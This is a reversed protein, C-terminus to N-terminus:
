CGWVGGRINLPPSYKKQRTQFPGQNHPKFYSFFGFDNATNLLWFFEDQNVAYAEPYDQITSVTLM